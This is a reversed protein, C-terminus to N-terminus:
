IVPPEGVDEEDPKDTEDDFPVPKGTTEYVYVFLVVARYIETLLSAFQCFAALLMVSAVTTVFGLTFLFQLGFLLLSILLLRFPDRFFQVLSRWYATFVNDRHLIVFAPWLMTILSFGVYISASVLIAMSLENLDLLQAPPLASLKAVTPLGDQYFQELVPLNKDWLPRMWLFLGFVVLAQILYGVLMTPFYRSVGPLFERFLTFGELATQLNPERTPAINTLYRTCAKGVMNFWGALFASVLMVVVLILLAWEPTWAPKESQPIILELLLPILFLVYM